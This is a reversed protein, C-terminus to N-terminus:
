GRWAVVSVHIVDVARALSRVLVGAQHNTGDFTMALTAPSGAPHTFTMATVNIGRRHCIAVLRLLSGRDALESVVV